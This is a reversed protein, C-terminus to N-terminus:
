SRRENTFDNNTSAMYDMWASRIQEEPTGEPLGLKERMANSIEEASAGENLGLEELMAPPMGRMEGSFNGDSPGQRNATGQPQENCGALFLMVAVIGLVIILTKKM